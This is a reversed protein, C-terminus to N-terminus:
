FFTGSAVEQLNAKQCKPCPILFQGQEFIVDELNTGLCVPCKGLLKSQKKSLKIKEHWTGMLVGVVKKCSRCVKMELNPGTASSGGWATEEYDCAQCRFDIIFGM